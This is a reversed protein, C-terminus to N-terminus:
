TPKSLFFSFTKDVWIVFTVKTLTIPQYSIIGGKGYWLRVSASFTPNGKEPWDTSFLSINPSNWHIFIVRSQPSAFKMKLLEYSWNFTVKNKKGLSGEDDWCAPGKFSGLDKRQVRGKIPSPLPCIFWLAPTTSSVSAVKDPRKWRKGPRCHM